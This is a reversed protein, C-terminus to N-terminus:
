KCIQMSVNWQYEMDVVEVGYIHFSPIIYAKRYCNFLTEQKIENWPITTDLLHASKGFSLDIYGRTM